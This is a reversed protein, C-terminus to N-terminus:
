IAGLRNWSITFGKMRVHESTRNGMQGFCLASAVHFLRLAKWHSLSIVVLSVAFLTGYKVALIVTTVKRNFKFM